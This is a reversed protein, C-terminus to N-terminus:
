PLPADVMEKRVVEIMRRIDAQILDCQDFPINPNEAVDQLQGNLYDLRTDFPALHRDIAHNIEVMRMRAHINMLNTPEPTM